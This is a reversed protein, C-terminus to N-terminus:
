IGKEGDPYMIAVPRWHNYYPVEDKGSDFLENMVECDETDKMKGSGVINVTGGSVSRLKM